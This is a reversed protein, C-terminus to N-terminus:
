LYLNWEYNISPRELLEITPYKKHPSEEALLRNVCEQVMKLDWRGYITAVGNSEVNNYIFTLLEQCESERYGTNM